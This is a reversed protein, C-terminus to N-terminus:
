TNKHSIISPVKIMRGITDPAQDLFDQTPFENYPLDERLLCSQDLIIQHCPEINLTDVENLQEVYKLILDLDKELALREKDSCHIRSLKILNDIM